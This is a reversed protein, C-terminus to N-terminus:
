VIFVWEILGGIAEIKSKAVETIAKVNKITVKKTINGTGLIKDYGLQKLDIVTQDKIILDLQTLTIAELRDKAKLRPKLLKRVGILPAYKTFKHKFSGGRGRGGNSGGGRNNKTNGKGHTRKGRLRDVKSKSM